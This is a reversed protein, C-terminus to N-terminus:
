HDSTHLDVSTYTDAFGAILDEVIHSLQDYESFPYPSDIVHTPVESYLEPFQAIWLGRFALGIAQIVQEVQVYPALADNDTISDRAVWRHLASLSASSKKNYFTDSLYNNDLKWTAWAPAASKFLSGNQAPTLRCFDLYNIDYRPQM